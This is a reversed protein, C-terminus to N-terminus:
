SQVQNRGSRKAMYLAADAAAMLADVTQGVEYTAAGISVTVALPPTTPLPEAEVALRLREAVELATQLTTLPLVILFEEGGYRTCVDGQRLGERVRQAFTRLAEDGVMHGHVDNIKKFYDIDLMLISFPQGTSVSFELQQVLLEDLARRNGQGTLADTAADTRVKTLLGRLQQALAANALQLGIGERVRNAIRSSHYLMLVQFVSFAVILDVGYQPSAYRALGLVAIGWMLGTQLYYGRIYTVYVQANVASVGCLLAVMIADLLVEYGALLWGVAGWAMGDLAAMVQMRTGHAQQDCGNKLARDISLLGVVWVVFFLALWFLLNREPVRGWSMWAVLCWGVPTTHLTQRFSAVWLAFGTQNVVLRDSVSLDPLPQQM